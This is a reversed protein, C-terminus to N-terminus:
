CNRIQVRVDTGSSVIVENRAPSADTALVQWSVYGHTGAPLPQNFPGLNVRYLDGSVLPMADNGRFVVAGDINAVIQYIIRVRTIGSADRVRVSPQVQRPSVCGPGGDEYILTRTM